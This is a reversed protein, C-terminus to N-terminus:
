FDLASGGGLQTEVVQHHDGQDALEAVLPEETDEVGVVRQVAGVM